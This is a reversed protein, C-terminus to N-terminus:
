VLGECECGDWTCRVGPRFREVRAMAPSPTEVARRTRANGARATSRNRSPRPAHPPDPASGTAGFVTTTVSVAPLADALEPIGPAEEAAVDAPPPGEALADVPEVEPPDPPADGAADAAGGRGPGAAPPGVMSTPDFSEAANADGLPLM